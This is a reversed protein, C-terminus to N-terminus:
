FLKPGDNWGPKNSDMLSVTMGAQGMCHPQNSDLPPQKFRQIGSMAAGTQFSPTLHM